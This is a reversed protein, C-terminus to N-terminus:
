SERGGREEVLEVLKVLLDTVDAIDNADRFVLDKQGHEARHHAPGLLAQASSPNSRVSFGYRGKSENSYLAPVHLRQRRTIPLASCRWSPALGRKTTVLRVSVGSDAYSVYQPRPWASFKM